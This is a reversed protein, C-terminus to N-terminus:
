RGNQQRRIRALRDREYHVSYVARIQYPQRTDAVSDAFVERSETDESEDNTWGETAILKQALNRKRYRNDIDM